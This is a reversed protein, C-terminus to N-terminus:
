SQTTYDVEVIGPTSDDFFLEDDDQEYMEALIEENNMVTGRHIHM